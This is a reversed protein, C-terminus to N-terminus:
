SDLFKKIKEDREIQIQLQLQEVLYDIITETPIRKGRSYSFKESNMDLPRGKYYSQGKTDFNLELTSKYPINYKRANM